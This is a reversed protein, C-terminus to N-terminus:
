EHTIVVKDNYPIYGLSRIKLRYEGAPLSISYHGNRDTTTWKKLSKSELQVTVAELPDNDVTITGKITGNQSFCLTSFAIAIASLFTKM